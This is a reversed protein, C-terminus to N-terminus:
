SKNNKKMEVLEAIKELSEALLDPDTDDPPPTYYGHWNEKPFIPDPKNPNHEDPENEDTDAM